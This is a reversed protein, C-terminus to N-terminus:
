GGCAQRACDTVKLKAETYAPPYWGQLKPAKTVSSSKVLRGLAWGGEQRLCILEDGVVLNLYVTDDSTALDDRGWDDGNFPCSVVFVDPGPLPAYWGLHRRVEVRSSDANEDVPSHEESPGARLVLTGDANRRSVVCPVPEDGIEHSRYTVPLTPRGEDKWVKVAELAERVEAASAPGWRALGRPQPGDAAVAQLM